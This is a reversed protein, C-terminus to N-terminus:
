PNPLRCPNLELETTTAAHDKGEASDEHFGAFVSVPPLPDAPAPDYEGRRPVEPGPFRKRRERRSSRPFFSRFFPLEKPGRDSGGILSPLRGVAPNPLCKEKGLSDYLRWKQAELCKYDPNWGCSAAM